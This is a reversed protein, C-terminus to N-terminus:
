LATGTNHKSDLVGVVRSGKKDRTRKKEPKGLKYNIMSSIISLCKWSATDKMEKEREDDDDDDDDVTVALEYAVDEWALPPSRIIVLAM